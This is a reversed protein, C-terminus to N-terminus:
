RGPLSGIRPGITLRHNTDDWSREIM